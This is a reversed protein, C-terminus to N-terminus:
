KRVFGYKIARRGARIRFINKGIEERMLGSRVDM